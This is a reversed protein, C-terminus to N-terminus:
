RPPVARIGTADASLHVRQLLAISRVLSEQRRDRLRGPDAGFDQCRDWALVHLGNWFDPHGNRPTLVELALRAAPAAALFDFSAQRVAPFNADDVVVLARVSLHAAALLLGVLQSRYDHAADYFYVGVPLGGQRRRQLLFQEFDADHVRVQRDLGFRRLNDRLVRENSGDGNFEVFNDVAEASVHPHDLLAGLLTAGRFCGVECYVEGEELCAVAHNLLQLVGPTTMGPVSALLAEFRRSRPRCGPQAWNEYLGPLERFFRELDV